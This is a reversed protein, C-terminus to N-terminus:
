LTFLDELTVEARIIGSHINRKLGNTSVLTPMLGKRTKSAQRFLEVRRKLKDSEEKTFAYEQPAYKMECINITRDNRDILMDIQADEM